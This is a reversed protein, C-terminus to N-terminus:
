PLIVPGPDPAPSPTSDGSTVEELQIGSEVASDNPNAPIPKGPAVTKAGPLPKRSTVAPTSTSAGSGTQAGQIEDSNTEEGNEQGLIKNLSEKTEATEAISAAVAARVEAGEAQAQVENLIKEEEAALEVAHNLLEPKEAIAAVVKDTATKLDQLSEKVVNDPAKKGAVLTSVEQLRTQAHSKLTEVKKEDGQAAALVVQVQEVAKKVPYLTEGPLSTQAAKAVGGLLSVAIIIILATISFKSVLSFGLFGRKPAPASIRTQRIASQIRLWVAEKAPMDFNKRALATFSRAILQELEHDTM